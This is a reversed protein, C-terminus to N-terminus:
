AGAPVAALTVPAASEEEQQLAALAAEVVKPNWQSGAGRRLEGMAGDWSKAPRYARNSTMADFSDAVPIVQAILLQRRGVTGNPYGMGDYREHHSLVLDLVKAYESFPRLIDFGLRPHREMARREEETLKGPKLLISDPIRIKGIDHVKAALEILEIEAVSLRMKRAIAKSYRAVRQSHQYTYPDRRDVEDAMREMARVSEHRLEIRHRWSRYVLFAGALSLALLWPLAVAAYAAAAGVLYLSAFQVLVLKHANRLVSLLNRSTALAVATSVLLVNTMYMAGAAAVIFLADELTPQDHASVGAASLVLGAALVALYGQGANFLLLLAITGLPAKEHTAWARKFSALAVNVGMTAGVLAAAQWAPLLLVTAFWVATAASVKVSVSIHLPFRLAILGTAALTAVLWWAPQARGGSVVAATLGNLTGLFVGLAALGIALRYLDSRRRPAV